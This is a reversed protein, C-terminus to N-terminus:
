QRIYADRLPSYLFIESFVLWPSVASVQDVAISINTINPINENDSLIQFLALFRFHIKPWCYTLYYNLFPSMSNDLTVNVHGKAM